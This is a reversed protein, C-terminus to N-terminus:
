FLGYPDLDFKLQAGNTETSESAVERVARCLANLRKASRSLLGINWRYKKRVRHVTAPAPGLIALGSFRQADRQDCVIRHVAATAREVTLLDESEVAINAMRRFPPYGANGREAMELAYFAAYDHAAACQIAYHKPRYTQILVNGPRDGRGARGAVQTLLQFVNEAARFDPLALGTDANLVGVLTVGPYDHGKAIMQTGILIDIDRAALRGLIRAHGGKGATTDADMREVRLDPFSRVIIDEIKQTGTGLFLLPNFGCEDCVQPVARRANCYHCSLFGGKAHYTMSVQCDSCYAVWGCMPCMVFPAFGRRNLLLLVQDGAKIRRIIETELRNSLIVSGGHERTETRMDILDVEPLAANTARRALALRVSKGTESNRYSEISPTASGVVCVAQSMQARMIAVDRAHYRPTESQKYSSDHEEDVVIIGVRPLPAFVASRAGVVIRVEGRQARRWEDYREGAGLGSHLVAIKANFRAKFRGVTQPTLSIEPVLVIADRGAELVHEIAQLYVETKGSGTIGHLLFTQFTSTQAASVIADLAVQQERNLTHKPAARGDGTDPIRYAEREERLILGKEELARLVSSTVKHKEYLLAASREPEGHLLDLYVAAQRPARRQLAILEENEPIRDEVLRAFAETRMSVGPASMVPEALVIGRRVLSQLTNSIASIGTARTLQAETRPGARHLEALISRQRDTFRGSSLQALLLTYRMKTRAQIGAPVACQLAEGWSCCYYESVWRCLDLLARSFIPAEDPLDFVTRVHDVDTENVLRVIYGTRIRNKVPVVVRMGIAARTRLPGPLAYTLPRDVPLPLAVQAFRATM